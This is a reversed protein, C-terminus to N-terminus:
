TAVVANVAAEVRTESEAANDGVAQIAQIYARHVAVFPSAFESRVGIVSASTLAVFPHRDQNLRSIPDAGPVVHVFGNLQNSAVQLRVAARQFRAAEQPDGPRPVFESLEVVFHVATISVAVAGGEVLWDLESQVPPQLYLFNQSTAVVNLYHLTSVGRNTRIRGEIAGEATHVRITRGDSGELEREM